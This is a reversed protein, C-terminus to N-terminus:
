RRREDLEGDTLDVDIQRKRIGLSILDGTRVLGPPGGADSEPPVLLKCAPRRSGMRVVMEFEIV